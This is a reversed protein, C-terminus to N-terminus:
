LDLEQAWLSHDFFPASADRPNLIPNSLPWPIAFQPDNWRFTRAAAPRYPHTMQYSVQTDPELTQFGHLLGKPLFIQNPTDANLVVHLHKLYTPSHPRLDVAVDFISGKAVRILKDEGHPTIQLHLGRLTGAQINQSLSSQPYNTPLGAQSFEEVCFTRCFAGREDRFPEAEILFAGVLALPIFKM